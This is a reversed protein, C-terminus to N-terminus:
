QVVNFAIPINMITSVAVGHYYGPEWKPMANLVRIVEDDLGYGIGRIIKIAEVEGKSNIIFSAYVRGKVGALRARENFYINNQLFKILADEGGKFEPTKDVSASNFPQSSAVSNENGNVSNEVSSSNSFTDKLNDNGENDSAMVENISRSTTDKKIEKTLLSDKLVIFLADAIMKQKPIRQPNFDQKIKKQKEVIFNEAVYLKGDPKIDPAIQKKFFHQCFFVGGFAFVVFLMTTGFAKIVRSHYSKRLEYAGYEKNRHEFVIEDLNGSTFKFTRM